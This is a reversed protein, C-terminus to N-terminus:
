GIRPGQFNVWVRCVPAELHAGIVQAGEAVGDADDPWGDEAVGHAAPDNQEIARAVGAVGSAQDQLGRHGSEVELAQALAEAAEAALLNGFEGPAVEVAIWGGDLLPRPDEGDEPWM